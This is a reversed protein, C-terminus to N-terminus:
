DKHAKKKEDKGDEEDDDKAVGVLTGDPLVTIEMEVNAADHFTATFVAKGDQKESEFEGLKVGPPAAKRMTALVAPPVDKEALKHEDTEAARATVGFALCLLCSALIRM